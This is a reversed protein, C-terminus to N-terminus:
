FCNSSTNHFSKGKQLCVLGFVKKIGFYNKSSIIYHFIVSYNPANEM